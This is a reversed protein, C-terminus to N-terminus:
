KLRPAKEWKNAAIDFKNVTDLLEDNWEGAILFLTTNMYNVLVTDRQKEPPVAKINITMEDSDLTSIQLLSPM